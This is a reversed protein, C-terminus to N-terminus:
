GISQDHNTPWLDTPECVFEVMHRFVARCVRLVSNEITSQSADGALALSSFGFLLGHLLIGQIAEASRLKVRINARDEQIPRGPIPFKWSTGNPAARFLDCSATKRPGTKRVGYRPRDASSERFGAETPLKVVIGAQPSRRIKTYRLRAARDPQETKGPGNMRVPRLPEHESRSLPLESLVPFSPSQCSAASPIPSLEGIRKRQVASEPQASSYPLLPRASALLM